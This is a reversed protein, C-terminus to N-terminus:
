HLKPLGTVYALGNERRNRNVAYMVGAEYSDFTQIVPTDTAGPAPGNKAVLCIQIGELHFGHGTTGAISGNKAWDLWGYNQAHVRYYVDYHNAMEGTLEIQIAELRLSQGQTRSMVDDAKWQSEWGKNQIHTKYRAGGSYSANDVANVFHLM